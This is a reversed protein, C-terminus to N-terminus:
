FRGLGGFSCGYVQVDLDFSKGEGREVEPCGGSPTIDRLRKWSSRMPSRTLRLLRRQSYCSALNSVTTVLTM